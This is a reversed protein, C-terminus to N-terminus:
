RRLKVVITNSLYNFLRQRRKPYLIWGIIADIPLLFAKGISEIAAQGINPLRGDIQTVKIRMIMKGISQGYAGESLMWYLFYVINSAGFDMFPIWTPAGPVWVFGPWGVLFLARLLGVIAGIIVVDILWAPFRDGWYALNPQEGALVAAGCKPCFAAGEPLENGCKKCQMPPDAEQLTM